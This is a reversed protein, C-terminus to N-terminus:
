GSVRTQDPGDASDKPSDQRDSGEVLEEAAVGSRGSTRQDVDNEEWMPSGENHLAIKTGATLILGYARDIRRRADPSSVRKISVRPTPAGDSHSASENNAM